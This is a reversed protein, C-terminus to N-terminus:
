ASSWATIGVDGDDIAKKATAALSELSAGAGYTPQNNGGGLCASLAFAAPLLALLRFESKM